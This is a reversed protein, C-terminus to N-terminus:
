SGQLLALDELAQDREATVAVVEATLATITNTFVLNAQDYQLKALRVMEHVASVTM